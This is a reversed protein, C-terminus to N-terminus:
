RVDVDVSSGSRWAIRMCGQGVTSTHALSTSDNSAAQEGAKMRSTSWNHM